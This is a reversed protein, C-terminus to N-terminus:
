SVLLVIDRRTFVGESYLAQKLPPKRKSVHRAPLDAMTGKDEAAEAVFRAVGAVLPEARFRVPM